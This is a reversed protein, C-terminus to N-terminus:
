KKIPGYKKLIGKGPKGLYSQKPLEVIKYRDPVSTRHWNAFNTARCAGKAGEADEHKSILRKTSSDYVAHTETLESMAIEEDFVEDFTKM